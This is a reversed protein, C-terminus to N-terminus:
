TVLFMKTHMSKGAVHQEIMYHFQLNSLWHCLTSVKLQKSFKGNYTVSGLVSGQM